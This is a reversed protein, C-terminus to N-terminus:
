FWSVTMASGIRKALIQRTALDEITALYWVAGRYEFRSLDSCWVQHPATVTLDILLNHYSRHPTSVTSYRKIRRRPPRLNFKAMVRQARKHNIGLHIAMRCHGYAPHQRHAAEIQQKLARDKVPQKLERYINKRSIGLAEACM